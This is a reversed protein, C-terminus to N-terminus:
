LKEYSLEKIFVTIKSAKESQTDKDKMESKDDSALILKTIMNM